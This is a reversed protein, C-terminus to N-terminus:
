VCLCFCVSSKLDVCGWLYVTLTVMCCLSLNRLMFGYYLVLSQYIIFNILFILMDFIKMSM